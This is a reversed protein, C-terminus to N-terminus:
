IGAGILIQNWALQSLKCILYSTSVESFTAATQVVRAVLEKQYNKYEDVIKQYRDGLKRLESNTFKIGDKRTELVVFHTNLKKRVKPEEKKTIRFVHGFQTGKDLKLTKNVALDLDNAIQRHLNDIQKELSEQEDKMASLTSDYDPSIMYEGNELQDLDVSTEVLGIFKNLHRDDTWDELKDLFREKIFSAFQGDYRELASKIYPLRISSQCHLFSFDIFAICTFRISLIVFCQM